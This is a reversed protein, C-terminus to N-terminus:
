PRGGNAPAAVALPKIRRQRRWPWPQPGQVRLSFVRFDACRMKERSRSPHARPAPSLGAGLILAASWQRARGRLVPWGTGVAPSRGALLTLPVMAADHCSGLSPTVEAGVTLRFIRLIRRKRGRGLALSASRTDRSNRQATGSAVFRAGTAVPAWRAPSEKRM